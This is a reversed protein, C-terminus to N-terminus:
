IYLNFDANVPFRKFGEFEVLLTPHIIQQTTTVSRLRFEHSSHLHSM